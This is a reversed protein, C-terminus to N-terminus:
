LKNLIFSISQKYKSALEIKCGIANILELEFRDLLETGKVKDQYKNEVEFEYINIVEGGGLLSYFKSYDRSTELTWSCTPHDIFYQPRSNINMLYNPLNKLDSTTHEYDVFVHSRKRLSKGILVPKLHQLTLTNFVTSDLYKLKQFPIIPSDIKLSIWLKILDLDHQFVVELAPTKIADYYAFIRDLITTIRVWELGDKVRYFDLETEEVEMRIDKHDVMESKLQFGYAVISDSINRKRFRLSFGNKYMLFDPSDLYLDYYVYDSHNYSSLGNLYNSKMEMESISIGEPLIYKRQEEIGQSFSYFTNILIFFLSIKTGM